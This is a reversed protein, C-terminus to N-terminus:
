CQQFIIILLIFYIKVKKWCSSVETLDALLFGIKLSNKPVNKTIWIRLNKMPLYDSMTLTIEILLLFIWVIKTNKGLKWLQDINWFKLQLSMNNAESGWSFHASKM